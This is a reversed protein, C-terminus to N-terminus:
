KLSKSKGSTTGSVKQASVNLRIRKPRSTRGLAPYPNSSDLLARSSADTIKRLLFLSVLSVAAGGFYTILLPALSIPQQTIVASAITSSISSISLFFGVASLVSCVWVKYNKFLTRTLPILEHDNIFTQVTVKKFVALEASYFIGMTLFYLTLLILMWDLQNTHWTQQIGQTVGVFIASTLGVSIGANSLLRLTSFWELFMIHALSRRYEKKVREKNALSTQGSIEERWYSARRKYKAKTSFKGIAAIVGILSALATLGPILLQPLINVALM